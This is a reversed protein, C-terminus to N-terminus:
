ESITSTILTNLKVTDLLYNFGEPPLDSSITIAGETETLLIFTGYPSDNNTEEKIRQMALEIKTCLDLEVEEQKKNKTFDGNVVKM